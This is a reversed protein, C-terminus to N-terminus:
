SRFHCCVCKEGLLGDDTTINTDITIYQATSGGNGGITVTNSPKNDFLQIVDTASAGSGNWHGTIQDTGTITGNELLPQIMDVYIKPTAIRQYSM